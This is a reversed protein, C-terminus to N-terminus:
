IINDIPMTGCLSAAETSLSDIQEMFADAQNEDAFFFNVNNDSNLLDKPYQILDEYSIDGTDVWKLELGGIKSDDFAKIYNTHGDSFNLVLIGSADISYDFPISEIVGNTTSGHSTDSFNYIGKGATCSGNYGSASVEYLTKGALEDLTFKHYIDSDNFGLSIGDFGHQQFFDNVAKGTVGPFDNSVIDALMDNNVGYEKAANYIVDLNDLNNMVFDRAEELTIGYKSLYEQTTM